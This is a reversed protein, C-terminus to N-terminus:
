VELWWLATWLTIMAPSNTHLCVACFCIVFHHFTSKNYLQEGSVVWFISYCSCHCVVLFGDARVIVVVVALHNDVVTCIDVVEETCANLASERLFKGDEVASGVLGM